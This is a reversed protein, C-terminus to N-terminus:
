LRNREAKMHGTDQGLRDTLAGLHPLVAIPRHVRFEDAPTTGTLVAMFDIGARAASQADTPSDGIFLTTAHAANLAAIAKQLGEPHPKFQKVDEAGIIIDFCATLKERDLISVIRHRYKTSVIGLRFGQRKLTPLLAPVPSMMQTGAVMVEDAKVLFWRAFAEKQEADGSGTLQEFIDPLSLGITRCAAEFPVEPISMQHLAFNICEACPRASDALTYDFDFLLTHYM